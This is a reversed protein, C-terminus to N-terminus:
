VVTIPINVTIISTIVSIINFISIIILTQVHDDSSFGWQFIILIVM